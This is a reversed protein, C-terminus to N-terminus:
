DLKNRCYKDYERQKEGDMERERKNARYWQDLIRIYDLWLRDKLSIFESSKPRKLEVHDTCKTYISIYQDFNNKFIGPISTKRYPSQRFLYKSLPLTYRECLELSDVEFAAEILKDGEKKNDNLYNLDSLFALFNAKNEVREPNIKNYKQLTDAFSYNAFDTDNESIYWPVNVTEKETKCSTFTLLLITWYLLTRIM